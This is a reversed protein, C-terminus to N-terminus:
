SKPPWPIFASTRRVYEDHGERKDAAAKNEITPIGSVKLLLGAMILPSALTAWWYPAGIALVVYTVWHLSEFFYNPHRSYRWLGEACVRGRNEPRQKFRHLQTDATGEGVVSVFWVAIAALAVGLSPAEPMYAVVLFPISLVAAILAQFLFFGLMYLDARAGWARRAAAYRSDEPAGRMRKALHGALRLAWTLALAALLIRAAAPADGLLAYAAAILGVAASWVVDVLGANRTFLQIIWVVTLLAAAIALGIGFAALPTM